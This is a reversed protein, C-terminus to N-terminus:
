QQKLGDVAKVIQNAFPVSPEFVRGQKSYATRPPASAHALVKGNGTKRLEFGVASRQAVSQPTIPESSSQSTTSPLNAPGNADDISPHFWMKVNYDCELRETEASLAKASEDAVLVRIVNLHSDALQKEMVSPLSKRTIAVISFSRGDKLKRSSLEQALRIADYGEADESICVKLSIQAYLASAGCMLIIAMCVVRKM